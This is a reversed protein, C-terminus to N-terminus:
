ARGPSALAGGPRAARRRVGADVLQDGALRDGELQRRGREAQADDGPQDVHRDLEADEDEARDQRRDRRGVLRQEPHQADHHDRERQDIPGAMMSVSVIPRVMPLNAMPMRATRSSAPGIEKWWENTRWRIPTTSIQTSLPTGARTPASTLELPLRIPSKTPPCRRPAPCTCAAAATAPPSAAAGRGSPRRRRCRRWQGVGQGDGQALQQTPGGRQAGLRPVGQDGVDDGLDLLVDRRRWRGAGM